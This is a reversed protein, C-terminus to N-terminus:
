KKPKYKSKKFIEEANLIMLEQPTINNQEMYSRVIQWGIYRGIMGPSENDLELKFKSFPAPNIFRRALGTDTSYLYENEVFNRWIDVENEQAWLLEEETYGIKLADSMNPLWLDKLYLEKGFYIIQDLFSRQKPVGIYNKSYLTAVESTIMSPKMNKSIFNSIGIYFPHESGLYTDLAIVLLSDKSLVKSRYDVDSTTTYVKPSKFQPYYYKIHQFLSALNAAMDEESPYAKLVEAHLEQQLTDLVRQQWLSDHVQKPFFLPYEAKLVPLNEITASGFIKDFRVIELDVPINAIEQELDSKTECGMWLIVGLLLLVKKMYLNNLLQKVRIEKKFKLKGKSKHPLPVTLYKRVCRGLM